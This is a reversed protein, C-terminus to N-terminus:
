KWRRKLAFKAVHPVKALGTEDARPLKVMDGFPEEGDVSNKVKVLIWFSCYTFFHKLILFIMITILTNIIYMVIFIIVIMTIMINFIIIITVIVYTTHDCIHHGVHHYIIMVMIM